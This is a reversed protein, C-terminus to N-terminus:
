AKWGTRIIGPLGVFEVFGVIPGDAPTIQERRNVTFLHKSKVMGNNM